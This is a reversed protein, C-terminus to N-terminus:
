LINIVIIILKRENSTHIIPTAGNEVRNENKILFLINTKSSSYLWSWLLWLILTDNVHNRWWAKKKMVYMSCSIASKNNWSNTVLWDTVLKIFFEIQSTQEQISHFPILSHILLWDISPCVYVHPYIIKERRTEEELKGTKKWMCWERISYIACSHIDSDNPALGIIWVILM